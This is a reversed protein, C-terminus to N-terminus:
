EGFGMPAWVKDQSMLTVTGKVDIIAGKKKGLADKGLAKNALRAMLENATSKGSLRKIAKFDAALEVKATYSVKWAPTRMLEVQENSIATFEKIVGAGEIAKGLASEVDKPAPKSSCGALFVSIVAAAIAIPVSKKVTRYLLNM